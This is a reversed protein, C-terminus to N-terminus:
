AKNQKNQIWDILLNYRKDQRMLAENGVLVLHKRARTLAVNLKRDVTEDDSLSILSDLQFSNNLCVSILIIDRAGGQYREVTDITCAEYRKQHLSLTARIQAIQARFPTIVGVSEPSLIQGNARYIEEFCAMIKGIMEAEQLNTKPNRFRNAPCDFFLVRSQALQLSLSDKISETNYDLAARQWAGIRVEQPLLGLKKDYFFHSPFQCIDEHMRGQHSLRDYAWHWQNKEAQEYLREFLSNRRNKLGIAQLDAEKVASKEKDQLVVAPLQKHDGVLVFRKFNPLMGVLMPELIQSAEDIIATDFKKMKLLSPKNIMSAITSVFIRHEQIIKQLGIRTKTAATKQTFLQAHYAPACSQSSGIRIFDDAAFEHIAECIEDVARNTYAMLLIQESSHNLLYHVMEALMFKTKGTGPPGVLLFYDHSNLAKQLVKQQESSLNPNSFSLKKPASQEPATQCLLRNKHTVDANLFEFLSRYQTRYSSDMMDREVHWYYDQTFLQDNFQKYYLRVEVQQNDIATISGKFMQNTLANDGSKLYPYFVVIDGQRFNALPNTKESRDFIIKPDDESCQNTKVKLFALVEFSAEKDELSNLWLAALGNVNNKGAVGTKSLQHERATFSVFSLFYLRELISASKLTQAFSSLDTATFGRAKPLSDANIQDLFTPHILNQTDLDALKKEVGIIANRLKIAEDQQVKLPPAYKLQDVDLVSYLIYMKPDVAQGFASRVLLDYLITQTYHSQSLGFRNPAYPKGSKLEVIAAEKTKPDKYWIDLRGQIGYKESFFSPELYCDKVEIANDELTKLVTAKLTSFHKQSKQQITKIDRDSMSVFALPNLAFVKPFTAKFTVEPKSMLEDLFFNAINGLMLPISQQFPLFKKITYLISSTGFSQFCESIASVDVMFDPEIVIQRAYYVGKDNVIIDILHLSATSAFYTKLLNITTNFHENFATVNYKVYITQSPNNEPKCVLFEKDVMIDVLLVRLIDIKQAVKLLPREPTEEKSPLLTKLREPVTTQCLAAIGYCVTKLSSLYDSDSLENPSHLAIRARKRLRHIRWQQAKGINMQHCLYAIRAFMTTFKINESNTLEVFLKNLLRSLEITREDNTAETYHLKFLASYLVHALGPNKM